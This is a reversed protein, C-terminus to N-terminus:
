VHREGLFTTNEYLFLEIGAAKSWLKGPWGVQKQMERELKWMPTGKVFISSPAFTFVLTMTVITAAPSLVWLQKRIRSAFSGKMMLLATTLLIAMLAAVNAVISLLSTIMAMPPIFVSSNIDNIGDAREVIEPTPVIDLRLKDAKPKFWAMYQVKNMFYPFDRGYIIKENPKGKNDIWVQEAEASKLKASERHSSKRLEDLFEMKTARANPRMGGSQSKFRALGMRGYANARASGNLYERYMANLRDMNRQYIPWRQQAMDMVYREYFSAKRDLVDRAPFMYLEDYMVLPFSVMVIAGAPGSKSPLPIYPDVLSGNLLSQRYAALHWGDVKTSRSLNQIVHDYVASICVYVGGAAICFALAMFHPRKLKELFSRGIAWTLGIAALWKGEISLANVAQQTPNTQSFLSLLDRNYRAEFYVYILTLLFLTGQVLLKKRQSIPTNSASHVGNAGSLASTMHMASGCGICFKAAPGMDIGCKDCYSM